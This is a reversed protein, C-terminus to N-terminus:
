ARLEHALRRRRVDPTERSVLAVQVLRAMALSGLSLGALLLAGAGAGVGVVDHAMTLQQSHTM